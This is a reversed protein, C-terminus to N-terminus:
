LAVILWDLDHKDLNIYGGWRDFGFYDGDFEQGWGGDFIESEIGGMEQMEKHMQKAAGQHTDFRETFIERNVVTILIYGNNNM